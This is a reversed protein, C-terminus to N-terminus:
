TVTHAELVEAASGELVSRGHRLLLGHSVVSPVEELDHTVYILTTDSTRLTRGLVDLFLARRMPDLGQCPEDLVLLEPRKALARGLLVTQREGESLERLRRDRAHELGLAVLWEEAARLERATLRRHPEAPDRWGSAIVDLATDELEEYLHMEPSVSGIRRRIEWITDGSGRRRGFLSVDNAYAQPNDALILSLLASKGAGNPGLVIWREGRRVTWSLGRLVATKAYTLGIDRLEVVPAREAAANQSRTDAPSSRPGVTRPGPRVLRAFREDAQVAEKPGQTVVRGRDLLLVHTVAAPIQDERSTLVLLTMGEQHLREVAESLATRAPGDLGNFPNDLALIAPRKGAARALLLKRREGNSLETVRRDLIPALALSDAIRRCEDIDLGPGLVDRGRAVADDQGAHWRSQAYGAARKLFASQEGFSVSLVQGIPDAALARGRAHSAYRLEGRTTPLQGRLVALLSSKGAGNPGVV